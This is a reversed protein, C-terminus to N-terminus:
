GGEKSTRAAGVGWARMGCRNAHNGRRNPSADPTEWPERRVGEGCATGTVGPLRGAEVARAEPDPYERNGRGEDRARTEQGTAPRELRRWQFLPEASGFGEGPHSPPYSSAVDPKVRTVAQPNANSDKRNRQRSAEVLISQEM